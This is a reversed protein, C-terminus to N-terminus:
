KMYKKRYRSSLKNEDNNQSEEVYNEDSETLSDQVPLPSEGEEMVKPKLEEDLSFLPGLEKTLISLHEPNVDLIWEEIDVNQQKKFSDFFGLNGNQLKNNKVRM